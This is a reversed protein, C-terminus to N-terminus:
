SSDVVVVKTCAVTSVADIANRIGAVRTEIDDYLPFSELIRYSASDDHSSSPTVGTCNSTSSSSDDVAGLLSRCVIAAADMEKIRDGQADRLLKRLGYVLSASDGHYASAGSREGLKHDQKETVPNSEDSSSDPFKRDNGANTLLLVVLDCLSDALIRLMLTKILAYYNEEEMKESEDEETSGGVVRSTSSSSSTSSRCDAIHDLENAVFLEWVGGGLLVGSTGAREDRSSANLINMCRRLCGVFSDYEADLLRPSPASLVASVVGADVAM